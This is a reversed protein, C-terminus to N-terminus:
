VLMWYNFSQFMCCFPQLLMNYQKKASFKNAWSGKYGADAARRVLRLTMDRDNLIYSQYWLNTGEARTAEAVEEISRTAHQSLGFLTGVRGCARASACEGEAEDCLAHVGAPSVFIPMSLRQGFLQTATSISRVPRM